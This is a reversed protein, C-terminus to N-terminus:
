FDMQHGQSRWAVMEWSVSPNEFRVSVATFFPGRSLSCLLSMRSSQQGAKTLQTIGRPETATSLCCGGLLTESAGGVKANWSEM